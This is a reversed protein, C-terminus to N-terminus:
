KLGEKESSLLVMIDEKAKKSIKKMNGLGKLLNNYLERIMKDKDMDRKTDMSEKLYKETRGHEM